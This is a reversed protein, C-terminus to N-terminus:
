LRLTVLAGKFVGCVCLIPCLTFVKLEALLSSLILGLIFAIQFANVRGKQEEVM